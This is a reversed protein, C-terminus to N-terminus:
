KKEEQAQKTNVNQAPARRNAPDGSWRIKNTVSQGQDATNIQTGFGLVETNATKIGNMYNLTEKGYMVRAAESGIRGTLVQHALNLGLINMAENQAFSSMEGKTRNLVISGNYNWVDDIKGVPAKYDVVHELSNQHLLPFRHSYVEKHVIIEKFPAINRWILTDSTTEQPDGYKSIMEKAAQVSSDPWGNTLSAAKNFAEANKNETQVSANGTTSATGQQNSPQSQKFMTCGSMVLMLTATVGFSIIRM